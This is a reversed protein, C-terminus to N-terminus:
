NDKCSCGRRYTGPPPLEDSQGLDVRLHAELCEPHMKVTVVEEFCFWRVYPQGVEIPEYWCWDCTHRRRAKNVKVPESVTM